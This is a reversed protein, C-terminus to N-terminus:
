LAGYMGNYTNFGYMSLGNNPEMQARHAALMQQQTSLSTSSQAGLPLNSNLLVQQQLAQQPSPLQPANQFQLRNPMQMAAPMQLMPGMSALMGQAGLFGLQNQMQLMGPPPLPPQRPQHQGWACKLAKGGVVQGNMSVIATVAEAHHSYSVFGYSGALM